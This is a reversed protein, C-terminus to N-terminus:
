WLFIKVIYLVIWYPKKASKKWSLFLFVNFYTLVTPRHNQLGLNCDTGKILILLAPGGTRRAQRRSMYWKGNRTAVKREPQTRLASLLACLQFSFLFLSPSFRLTHPFYSPFPILLPYFVSSFVASTRPCCNFSAILLPFLIPFTLINHQQQQQLKFQSNSELQLRCAHTFCPSAPLFLSPSNM